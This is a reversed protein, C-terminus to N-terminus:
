LRVRRPHMLSHIGPHRHQAKLPVRGLGRRIPSAKLYNLDNVVLLSWYVQDNDTETATSMVDYSQDTPATITLKVTDGAKASGSSLAYTFGSTNTGGDFEEESYTSLTASTGPTDSYVYVDIDKTEGPKLVVGKTMISSQASDWSYVPITDPAAPIAQVYPGTKDPACPFNGKKAVANSWFRQVPFDLGAPTYPQYDLITCLDGLEGIMTLNWAWHEDDIHAYAPATEPFPDTAWEYYEHVTAVSLENMDTCQALVAYGIQQNGIPLADHYGDFADCSKQTDQGPVVESITVSKPYFVAYLTNPDPTGFAPKTGSLKATIWTEVEKDTINAAPTENVVVTPDIVIPGVGYEAGIKTWYGSTALGKSFAEISPQLPDGAFVVPVVHPTAIVTGGSNVVQPFAIVPPAAAETAGDGSSSNSSGGDSSGGETAGNVAGGDSALSTNGEDSSGSCGFGWLVMACASLGVHRLM